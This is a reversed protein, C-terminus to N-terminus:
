SLARHIAGNAVQKQFSDWTSKSLCSTNKNKEVNHWIYRVPKVNRFMRPSTIGPHYLVVGDVDPARLYRFYQTLTHAVPGTIKNQSPRIELEAGTTDRFQMWKSTITVTASNIDLFKQGGRFPVLSYIDEGEKHLVCLQKLEFNFFLYRTSNRQIMGWYKRVNFQGICFYGTSNYACEPGGYKALAWLIADLRKRDPHCAIALKWLLGGYRKGLGLFWKKSSVFSPSRQISVRPSTMGFSPYFGM